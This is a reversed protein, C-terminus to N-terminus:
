RLSIEDVVEENLSRALLRLYFHTQVRLLADECHNHYSVTLYQNGNGTM